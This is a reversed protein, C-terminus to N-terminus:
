AHIKDFVAAATQYVVTNDLTIIDPNHYYFKLIEESTYGQNAMGRAGYQSMGCGHGWGGGYILINNGDTEIAFYSSPLFSLERTGAYNTNDSNAYAFTINTFLKRINLEGYVRYIGEDFYLDLSIIIGGSGRKSVELKQLNGFNALTPNTVEIGNEIRYIKTPYSEVLKPLNQNVQSSLNTLSEIYCWRHFFSNTDYTQFRILKYFTLMSAEDNIDFTIDEGDLTKAFITSAYPDEKEYYQNDKFWVQGFEATAASSTSFFTSSFVQGQYTIIKGKTTTIAQNAIASENSNGYVQSMVSDDVHYGENAYKQNHVDAVAYSRACIAQAELAVQGFSTPMESPVVTKLYTELSVMNVLRLYGSETLSIVLSGEYSPNGISRTISAVVMKANTPSIIIPNKTIIYTLHAITVEITNDIHKIVIQSNAPLTQSVDTSVDRITTAATSNIIIQEHYMDNDGSLSTRKNIRVFIDTADPTAYIGIYDVKQTYRNLYYYAWDFGIYLEDNSVVQETNADYIVTDHEYTLIGYKDILLKKNELDHQLIKGSIINYNKLDDSKPPVINITFSKRAREKTGDNLIVTVETSGQKLAFVKGVNDVRVCDNSAEYTLEYSKLSTVKVVISKIEGVAMESITEVDLTMHNKKCSGLTCIALGMILILLIKKM